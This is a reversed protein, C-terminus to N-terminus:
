REYICMFRELGPYKEGLSHIKFGIRRYFDVLENNIIKGLLTKSNDNKYSNLERQIREEDPWMCEALLQEVEDKHPYVDLEIM